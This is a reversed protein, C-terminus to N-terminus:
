HLGVEISIVDGTPFPFIYKQEFNARLCKEWSGWLLRNQQLTGFPFADYLGGPILLFQKVTLKVQPSDHTFYVLVIKGHNGALMEPSINEMFM